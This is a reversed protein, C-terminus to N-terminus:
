RSAPEETGYISRLWITVLAEVRDEVPLADGRALREVAHDNLELLLTALATSSPDRPAHGAAREAEIMRVVPAIFSERGDDFMARVEPKHRSDLMARYLHQYTAWTEVLGRMQSEIRERPTGTLGFLETASAAAHEYMQACLAAVAAEKNEFYFYFSSRTMGISDAIDAVTIEDLPQERLLEELAILLEARRETTRPPRGRAVTVRSM